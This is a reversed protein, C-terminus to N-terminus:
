KQLQKLRIQFLKQYLQLTYFLFLHIIDNKYFFFIFSKLISTLILSMFPIFQKKPGEPDPFVEIIFQTAPIFLDMFPLIM